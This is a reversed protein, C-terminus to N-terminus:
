QLHRACGIFLRVFATKRRNIRGYAFLRRAAVASKRLIEGGRMPHQWESRPDTDRMLSFPCEATIRIASRPRVM